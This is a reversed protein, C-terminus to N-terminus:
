RLVDLCVGGRDRARWFCRSLRAPAVRARRAPEGSRGGRARYVDAEGPHGGRIRRGRRVRLGVDCGHFLLVLGLLTLAVCVPEPVASIAYIQSQSFLFFIQAALAPFVGVVPRTLAFLLLGSAAMSALSLTRYGVLTPGALKGALALVYPYLPTQHYAFDVFPRHGRAVHRADMIYWGEDYDWLVLELTPYVLAM